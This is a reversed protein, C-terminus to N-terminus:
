GCRQCIGFLDLRHHDIEFGAEAAAQALARDLAEEVEPLVVFDDVRGCQSCMLHHHHHDTLDEALEYRAFDDGADLRHVVHVEEFLQLNRYASSQALGKDRGLIEQITLPRTTEELVTILARRGTTYRQGHESLRRGISTHLDAAM